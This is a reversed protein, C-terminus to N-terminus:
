GWTHWRIIWEHAVAAPRQEGLQQVADLMVAEVAAPTSARQHTAVVNDDTHWTRGGPGLRRRLERQIARRLPTVEPGPVGIVQADGHAEVAQAALDAVLPIREDPPPPSFQSDVRALCRRCTPAHRPDFYGRVAGADTDAMCLWGIACLTLPAWRDARLAHQDYIEISPDYGHRHPDLWKEPVASRGHDYEAALHVVSGTRTVVLLMERGQITMENLDASNAM